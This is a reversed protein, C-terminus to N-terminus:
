VAAILGFRVDFEDWGMVWVRDGLHEVCRASLGPVERLSGDTLRVGFGDDAIVLVGDLAPRGYMGTVHFEQIVFGPNADFTGRAVVDGGDVSALANAQDGVVLYVDGRDDRLEVVREDGRYSVSVTGSITTTSPSGPLPRTQNMPGTSNQNPSDNCGACATMSAVAAMALIRTYTM